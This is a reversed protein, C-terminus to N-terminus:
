PSAVIVPATESAIPAASTLKENRYRVLWDHADKAEAKWRPVHVDFKSQPHDLWAGTREPNYDSLHQIAEDISRSSEKGFASDIKYASHKRMGQMTNIGLIDEARCKVCSAPVCTCDGCHFGNELEGLLMKYEADSSDEQIAKLYLLAEDPDCKDGNLTKDLSFEAESVAEKYANLRVKLRFLEKEIDSLQITTRLPNENWVINM